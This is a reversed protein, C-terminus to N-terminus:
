SDEWLAAAEPWAKLFVSDLQRLIGEGINRVDFMRERGVLLLQGLTIPAVGFGESEWANLLRVGSPSPLYVETNAEAAVANPNADLWDNVAACTAEDAARNMVRLLVESRIAKLAVRMNDQVAEEIESTIFTMATHPQM